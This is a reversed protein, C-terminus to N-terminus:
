QPPQCEPQRLEQPTTAITTTMPQQRTLDPLRGTILWLALCGALLMAVLLNLWYRWGPGGERGLLAWCIFDRM